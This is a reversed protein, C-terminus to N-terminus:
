RDRWRGSVGRAASALFGRAHRAQPQASWALKLFQFANYQFCLYHERGQEHPSEVIYPLEGSPCNCPRSFTSCLTLTSSFARTARRRGSDCSCGRRKWPITRFRAARSTSTTSPEERRTIRSGSAQGGPIRVLARRGALIGPAARARLQRAAAIAGWDGEVTAILHKREPLPYPWFGEPQQLRLTAETSELALERYRSEGTAEYLMWNALVWYGQTQMFVYDDHWPVFDLASKLFRWLRLNFRVGADPGHLLGHDFHRRLLHAHLREAARFLQDRDPM